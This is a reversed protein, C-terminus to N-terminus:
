WSVSWSGDSTVILFSQSETWLVTGDYDGIENVLLESDNIGVGRVIFNSNGTNSVKLKTLSPEDIYYVGDGTYTNGSKLKSMTNMPRITISWSGSANIELMTADKYDSYTTKTGTYAGIENAILDCTDGSSDVTKVIFNSEGSYSIDMIVPTGTVPLDVVDDGTGSLTVTDFDTFANLAAVIESTTERETTTEQTTTETQKETTTETEEKTTTETEQAELAQHWEKYWYFLTENEDNDVIKDVRIQHVYKSEIEADDYLHNLYISPRNVVDSYGAYQGYFVLMTENDISDQVFEPEDNENYYTLLVTWEDGNEDEVLLGVWEFNDGDEVEYTDTITGAMCVLTGGLGNDSAYSNFKDFDAIEFAENDELTSSTSKNSLLDACILIVILILVVAIITLIKHAKIKTWFKKFGKNQDSITDNQRPESEERVTKSVNQEPKENQEHEATDVNGAAESESAAINTAKKNNLDKNDM